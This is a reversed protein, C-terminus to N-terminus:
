GLGGPDPSPGGASGEWGEVVGRLRPRGVPCWGPTPPTECTSTRMVFDSSAAPVSTRPAAIRKGYAPVPTSHPSMAVPAATIVSSVRFAVFCPLGIAENQARFATPM